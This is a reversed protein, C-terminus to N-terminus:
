CSWDPINENLHARKWSDPNSKCKCDLSLGFDSVDSDNCM